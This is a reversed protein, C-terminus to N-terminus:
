DHGLRRICKLCSHFIGLVYFYQLLFISLIFSKALLSLDPGLTFFIFETTFAAWLMVWRDCTSIWDSPNYEIEKVKLPCATVSYGFHYKFQLLMVIGLICAFIPHNYPWCAIRILFTGYFFVVGIEIKRKMSAAASAEPNLISINSSHDSITRSADSESSEEFYDFKRSYFYQLVDTDECEFKEALLPKGYEQGSSEFSLESYSCIALSTTLIIAILLIWASKCCM